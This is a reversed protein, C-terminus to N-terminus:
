HFNERVDLAYSFNYVAAATDGEYGLDAVFGGGWYSSVIGIFPQEKLKGMSKWTFLDDPVDNTDLNFYDSNCFTVIRGPEIVLQKSGNAGM